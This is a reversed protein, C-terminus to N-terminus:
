FAEVKRGLLTSAAERASLRAAGGVFVQPQGVPREHDDFTAVIFRDNTQAVGVLGGNPLWARLHIVSKMARADLRQGFSQRTHQTRRRNNKCTRPM